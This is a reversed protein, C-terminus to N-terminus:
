VRSVLGKPPIYLTVTTGEGPRSYLYLKGEILEARERMNGLGYGWKNAGEPDFGCGNDSITIVVGTESQRMTVQAKNTMSHRHCNWLAEQVLLRVQRAVREHIEVQLGSPVTRFEIQMGIGGGFKQILTGLETSLNLCPPRSSKLLSLTERMEQYASQAVQQLGEVQTHLEEWNDPLQDVLSTLQAQLYWLDQTVGDHLERALWSPEGAFKLPRTPVEVVTRAERM